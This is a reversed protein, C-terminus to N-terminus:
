ILDIVPYHQQVKNQHDYEDQWSSYSKTMTHAVQQVQQNRGARYHYLKSHGAHQVAPLVLCTCCGPKKNATGQEQENGYQKGRFKSIAPPRLQWPVPM